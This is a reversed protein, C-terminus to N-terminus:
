LELGPDNEAQNSGLVFGPVYDGRDNRSCLMWPGLESREDLLGRFHLDEAKRIHLMGAVACLARQRQTHQWIPLLLLLHFLATPLLVWM